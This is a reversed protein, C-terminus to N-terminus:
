ENMMLVRKENYLRVYYFLQKTKKRKRLKSFEDYIQPERKLISEVNKVSYELINGTEMDIIFQKLEETQYTKSMPPSYYYPNYYYSGYYPEPSIHRITNITTIFHSISGVFPILNAKNSWYIYPKGNKSFGWVESIQKKILLGHKDNFIITKATDLNYYFDKHSYDPYVVSEFPIPSNNRFDSFQLYLGPKFEFSFDCKVLSDSQSLSLKTVCLLLIFFYTKKM